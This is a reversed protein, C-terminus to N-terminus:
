FKKNEVIHLAYDLRKEFLQMETKLTGDTWRRTKSMQNNNAFDPKLEANTIPNILSHHKLWGIV